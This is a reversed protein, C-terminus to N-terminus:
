KKPAIAANFSVDYSYPTKDVMTKQPSATRSRGSISKGNFTKAEFVHETSAGQIRGFGKGLVEFHMVQKDANLVQVVCHVNGGNTAAERAFDDRVAGAPLPADCFLVTVDQKSKDFFGEEAFAYVQTLPYSVGKVDLKGESRDQAAAQAPVIAFLSVWLSAKIM